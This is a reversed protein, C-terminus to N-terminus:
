EGVYRGVNSIGLTQRPVFDYHAAGRSLYTIFLKASTGLDGRFVKGAIMEAEM